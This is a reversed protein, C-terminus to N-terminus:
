LYEKRFDTDLMLIGLERAKNAKDTDQDMDQVIVKFTSKSVSSGMKGGAKKILEILEKDRFGTMIITKGSLPGEYKVVKEQQKVFDDLKYLLKAKVLFVKFADINDVFLKATKEGLGKMKVLKDLKAQSSEESQLIDPYAELIPELKKEGLGRGFINTAKMLVPLSVAKITADINKYLKQATKEKFGEVKLFDEPTMALISGMDDYGADMIKKINGPGLGGVDLTKFFALVRKFKVESNTSSDRLIIDIHTPNWIYDEDPMKPEPAPDVVEMIYPIVDGSRIIKVIAGIGLKNKEVFAANFATAYEIKVGSLHIPEIRIRPKLFGDKSAAWLVDVVKAEAIQDSLVMKFAFAHEPNGSKRPYIKNHAVIIGDIEYQYSDRWEVLLASLFENSLVHKTGEGIEKYLVCKVGIKELFRMQELPAAEPHICEYAVFDVYKLKEPEITLRNIIGSVTNRPNSAGKFREEFNAKSILFEGRIVLEESGNEGVGGEGVDPLQLHPILHSIDQGVRGNGRTYLRKEGDKIVYLGSVGDLKASVVYEKPKHYKAVWKALAKTDPKIKDMSWMEYPLDVKKHEVPAGIEDLVKHNPSKSELYEKIIDYQNDTVVPEHNYYADNAFKIMDALNDQTLKHLYNVGEQQFIKLHDLPTVKKSKLTTKHSKIAKKSPSKIVLPGADDSVKSQVASGNIREEPRKYEMNLFDFIDQETKFEQDIAKGKKGKVMTHFGHENLTYNMDLARQRMVTNFLASGTFYLTAFAYESPPSYLFDLRRAPKGEELRGIVLCKTKGEALKHLIIGTKQLKDVYQKLISPKNNNTIIVDIDGSSKVGRRYSGVIRFDAGDAEATEGFTFQEKFIKEFAQIETRPIRLELDDYYQLGLKQSSNLEDENERLQELTTIGKKVLAKAKAPGVGYIKTFINMPNARMAVLKKISGTDDLEKLKELMTKGIGPLDKIEDLSTIPKQYMIIAEAAKQYARARFMEGTTKHLSELEQLAKIYTENKSTTSTISTSSSLPEDDPMKDKIQLTDKIEKPQTDEIPDCMKTTKNKKYGKRCRGKVPGYSKLKKSPSPSKTMSTPLQEPSKTDEKIPDCMKTTKNKKYGKRCRGKVPGYSEM